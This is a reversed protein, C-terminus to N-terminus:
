AQLAARVQAVHDEAHAVVFAEVIDAVTVLGRRLHLGQKARDAASMQRIVAAGTEVEQKLRGLLEAPDASAGREVAALREPADLTRGFRPPAGSAEILTRCHQLWYPIAEVIHGVVQLASWENEAPNTRLRRAVDPQQWVAALQEYVALLRDAQAGASPPQPLPTM